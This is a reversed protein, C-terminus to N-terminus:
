GEAGGDMKAGCQHCYNTPADQPMGCVSCYPINGCPEYGWRAHVVQVADITPAAEIVALPVAKYRMACGTEDYEYVWNVSPVKVLADADILRM